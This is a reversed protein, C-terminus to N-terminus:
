SYKSNITYTRAWGGTNIEYPAFCVVAKGNANLYFKMKKPLYNNITTWDMSSSDSDAQIKAVVKAKVTAANGKCVQVLNLKKGTKLDYTLGYIDTNSVGGAYWYTKVRISIIGNKNYTVKSTASYRYTDNSGSSGAASAYDYLTDATSSKLFTNVESTISKNIKKIASTSGKLTVRKYYVKAKLSGYTKSKDVKSTTYKVGSAAHVNSKGAFCLCFILLFLIGAHRFTSRKKEM